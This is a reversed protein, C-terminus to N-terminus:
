KLFDISVNNQSLYENQKALDYATEDMDTQINKQAGAAILYKLVTDDKSIMAARLLPTLGESNKANVDLQLPHLEKLLNVDAKAVAIHYLTNGNAQAAKFDVGKDQLLKMKQAFDNNDGGRPGRTQKGKYSQILYYAANNGAKDKAEVDAGKELLFQVTEVSGNQVANELPTVGEKNIQNINKVKPFLLALVKADRAGAANFFPTNGDKDQQNVDAGNTVFWEIIKEQDMKKTLNHLANEGNANVTNPRIGTGAIYQYVDLTNASRRSGQTAMVMANATPKIGKERLRKLLDINGVRAAYDFLTSGNEDKDQMSFGKTLLYNTLPLDPSDNGVAVLLLSSGNAYQKKLNAGAKILTEYVEIDKQGGSAAFSLPTMAHSDEFNVNAGKEILYQMVPVNGNAAAWFLYTRNDHTLKNVDNGKQALLYQITEVPADNNIALVVADFAMPNKQSPNNGDQVAQQVLALAPKGKWFDQDLLKNQNQAHTCLTALLMASLFIKKM